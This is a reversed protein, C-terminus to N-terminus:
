YVFVRFNTKLRGSSDHGSSLIFSMESTPCGIPLFALYYIPERARCFGRKRKIKAPRANSSVLYVKFQCVITPWASQIALYYAVSTTVLRLKPNPDQTECIRAVMEVDPIKTHDSFEPDVRILAGRECLSEVAANRVM